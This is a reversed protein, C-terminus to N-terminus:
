PTGRWAVHDKESAVCLTELETTFGGPKVKMLQVRYHCRKHEADKNFANCQLNRLRKEGLHFGM